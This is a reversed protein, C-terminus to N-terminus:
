AIQIKRNYVITEDVVRDKWGEDMFMCVDCPEDEADRYIGFKRDAEGSLFQRQYYICGCDMYYFVLGTVSKPFVKSIERALWLAKDMKQPEINPQNLSM